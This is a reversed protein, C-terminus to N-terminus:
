ASPVNRIVNASSPVPRELERDSGSGTGTSRMSAATVTAAPRRHRPSPRRCRRRSVRGGRPSIVVRFVHRSATSWSPTVVIMADPGSGRSISMRPPPLACRPTSHAAVPFSALAVPDGEPHVAPRPHHAVPDSSPDHAALSGGPMPSGGGSMAKKSSTTTSTPSRYAGTSASGATSSSSECTGSAQRIGARGTARHAPLLRPRRRTRARRRRPAPRTSGSRSARRRQSAGEGLESRRCRGPGRPQRSRRRAWRGRGPRHM